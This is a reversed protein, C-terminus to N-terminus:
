SEHPHRYTCDMENVRDFALKKHASIDPEFGIYNINRAIQNWRPELGGAAGIDVLTIEAFEPLLHLVKNLRFGGLHQLSTILYRLKTM